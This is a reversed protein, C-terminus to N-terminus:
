AGPRLDSALGSEYRLATNDYQKQLLELNEESLSIREKVLLIQYFFVKIDRIYMQRGQEYSILEKEFLYQLNKFEYPLSGKLELSGGVSGSASWQNNPLYDKSMSVDGSLKPLLMQWSRDNATKKQDLDIQRQKLVLNESMAKSIADNLEWHYTEPFTGSLAIFILIASILKTKM